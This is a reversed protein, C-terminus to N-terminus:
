RAAKVSKEHFALVDAESMAEAVTTADDPLREALAKLFIAEIGNTRSLDARHKAVALLQPRRMEGLRWFQNTGPTSYRADFPSPPATGAVSAAVAAGHLHARGARRAGARTAHTADHRIRGVYSRLRNYIVETTVGAVFADWADPDAAALASAAATAEATLTVPGTPASLTVAYAELFLEARERPTVAASV